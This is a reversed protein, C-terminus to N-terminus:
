VKRNVSTYPLWHGSIIAHGRRGNERREVGEIVFWSCTGVEQRISTFRRANGGLVAEKDASSLDTRKILEDIEKRCKQANFVEHPFDSGFIFAERGAKQVAFGLGDDDVDFGVFVSWSIGTEDSFGFGGMRVRIRWGPATQELLGHYLDTKM